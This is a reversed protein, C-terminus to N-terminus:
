ACGWYAAGAGGGAGPPPSSTILWSRSSPANCSCPIRVSSSNAACFALSSPEQGTSRPARSRRAALRSGSSATCRSRRRSSRTGLSRSASASRTSPCIHRSTRSSACSPWPRGGLRAARAALYLGVPWGETQELLRGIEGDSFRVGVDAFLLQAEQRDLALEDVGIEVVDRRTRLLRAPLPPTARTGVALRSGDPLRLALETVVALAEPDVAVQDLVMAVPDVSELARGLAALAVSVPHTRSRLSEVIMPSVLGSRRLALAIGVVLVSPDNDAADLSLWAVQRRQAASWQALLTTRVVIGPRLQPPRLKSARIATRGPLEVGPGPARRELRPSRRTVSADVV